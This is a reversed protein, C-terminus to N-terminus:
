KNGLTASLPAPRGRSKSKSFVVPRPIRMIVASARVRSALSVAEIVNEVAENRNGSYAQGFTGADWLATECATVWLAFDAM